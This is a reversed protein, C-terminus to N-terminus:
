AADEGQGRRRGGLHDALVALLIFGGQVAREWYVADPGLKLFTLVNGIMGLLVVALLTGIITGKGGSISTGGVIVATVIFLEWGRGYGAEIQPLRTADVLTAAGVLLGTLGFVLLKIRRPSLGALRAAHLNSGVAYVRRGIPTRTALIMSAVIVTIALLVCLDVGAIKGTGLYRLGPVVEIWTGAM